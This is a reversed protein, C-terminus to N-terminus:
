LKFFKSLTKITNIALIESNSTSPLILKHLFKPLKQIKGEASQSQM